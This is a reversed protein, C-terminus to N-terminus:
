DGKRTEVAPCIQEARMAAYVELVLDGVDEPGFRPDEVWRWYAHGGAVEMGISVEEEKIKKIVAGAQGQSM